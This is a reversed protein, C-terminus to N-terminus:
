SVRDVLEDGRDVTDDRGAVHDGALHDGAVHDGAVHEGALDPAYTETAAEFTDEWLAQAQAAEGPDLAHDRELEVLRQNLPAVLRGREIALRVLEANGDENAQAVLAMAADAMVASSRTKIASHHDAIWQWARGHVGDFPVGSIERLAASLARARDASTVADAEALLARARDLDSSVDVLTLKGDHSEPLVSRGVSQRTDTLLSALRGDSPERDPWLAQQVQATTATGVINLFTLLSTQMDDLPQRAGRVRVPGLVQISITASEAYVVVGGPRPADSPDLTPQDAQERMWTELVDPASEIRARLPASVIQNLSDAVEELLEASLQRAPAEHGYPALHLMGDDLISATVDSRCRGVVVISLPYRRQRARQMLPELVSADAASAFIVLPAIPEAAGGSTRLAYSNAAGSAEITLDLRDLWRLAEEVLAETPETRVLGHLAAGAVDFSCRIDLQRRGPGSALEHVMSRVLGAVRGDRGEISLLGVSELNVMIADAVTVLAPSAWAQMSVGDSPFAEAPLLYADGRAEWPEPLDPAAASMVVDLGEPTAMVVDPQAMPEGPRVPRDALTQVASFLVLAAQDECSAALRRELDEDIDPLGEDELRAALRRLRARALLGLLGGAALASGALAAAREAPTLGGSTGAVDDVTQDSEEVGDDDSENGNTEEANGEAAADDVNRESKEGVVVLELDAEGTAPLTLEQGPYILSPDGPPLLDDLNEEMVEAWYPTIEADTAERGLDAELQAEAMEWLNDGEVVQHSTAGAPLVLTWGAKIRTFSGTLETGDPMVRGVNAERIETWRDASGLHQEALSMLTDRRGVETANREDAHDQARSEFATADVSENASVAVEVMTVPAEVAFAPLPAAIASSTKALVAIALAIQAVTRAAIWQAGGFGRMVAASRGRTLAILEVIFSLAIQGWAFWAVLAIGKIWTQPDISGTRVAFRVESFSPLATPFPWGVLRVLLFPVGILLAAAALTALLARLVAVSSRPKSM